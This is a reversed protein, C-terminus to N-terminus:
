YTIRVPFPDTKPAVLKVLPRNDLYARVAGASKMYAMQRFTAGGRTFGRTVAWQYYLRLGSMAPDAFDLACAKQLASEIRDVEGPHAIMARVFAVGHIAAHLPKSLSEAVRDIYLRYKEYVGLVEINTLGIKGCIDVIGSALAMKRGANNIGLEAKAVQPRSRPQGQDIGLVESCPVGHICIFWQPLKSITIGKLRTQGDLLSGDENFLLVSLKWLGKEMLRAYARSRSASINRYNEHNDLISQAMAADIRKITTTLNYKDM